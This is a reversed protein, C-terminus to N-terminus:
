KKPQSPSTFLKSKLPRPRMFEAVMEDTVGKRREQIGTILPTLLDILEKKLYGTLLKGSTYDQFPHLLYCLHIDHFKAFPACPLWDPRPSAKYFKSSCLILNMSHINFEVGVYALGSGSPGGQCAVSTM